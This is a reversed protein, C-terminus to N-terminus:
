KIFYDSIDSINFLELFTKIETECESAEVFGLNMNEWAKLVVESSPVGYMEYNEDIKETIEDRNSPYDNIQNLSRNLQEFEDKLNEYSSKRYFVAAQPYNTVGKIESWKEQLDYVLSVEIGNKQAKIVTASYVPEALLAYRVKGSLLAAQAEVVSPYYTVKSMPLDLTNEVIMQPVAGEGFLAIKDNTAQTNEVYYLNGWTVVGYLLYESNSGSIIKAGLNLPAIIVDYEPNPKLLAASIVDSGDVYSIDGEVFLMSLAPAGKPTIIKLVKTESKDTSCGVLLLSLMLVLFRKM